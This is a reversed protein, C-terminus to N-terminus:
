SSASSYNKKGKKWLVQALVIITLYTCIYFTFYTKNFGFFMFYMPIYSMLATPMLTLFVVQLGKPYIELPYESGEYLRGFLKKIEWVDSYWFAMTEIAISVLLLLVSGLVVFPLIFVLGEVIPIELKAIAYAYVTTALLFSPLVTIYGFFSFIITFVSSIPRLLYQDLGGDKIIDGLDDVGGFLMYFTYYVMQGVAYLALIQYKSWNGIADFNAFIVNLFVLSVINFGFSALTVMFFDARYEGAQM